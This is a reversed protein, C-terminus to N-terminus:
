GIEMDLAARLKRRARNLRSGVTGYPIDLAQAVEEHSLDGLAVLLVVDREKRSLAALARALHPQLSQAAVGTVVRDEHSEAAAEPGMRTLARYRRTEARRYSAVLNTAIGFLWARVCGRGAQFGARKRFAVFFTEAAVDDAIEPGLRGAVYGHVATFHRDYVGGFCGPESKSREVLSADAEDLAARRKEQQDGGVDPPATM